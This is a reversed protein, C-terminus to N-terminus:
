ESIGGPCDFVDSDVHTGDTLTVRIMCKNSAVEIIDIAAIHAGAPGAPGQRKYVDGLV